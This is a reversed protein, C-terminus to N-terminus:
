FSLYALCILISTSISVTSLGHFAGKLTVLEDVWRTADTGDSDYYIYGMAKDGNEFRYMESYTAAPWPQAKYGDWSGYRDDGTTAPSVNTVSFTTIGEYQTGLANITSLNYPSTLVTAFNSESLYYTDVGLGSVALTM